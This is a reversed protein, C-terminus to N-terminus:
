SGTNDVPGSVSNTLPIWKDLAINRARRALQAAPTAARPYFMATELSYCRQEADLHAIRRATGPIKGSGIM